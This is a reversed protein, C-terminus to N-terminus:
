AAGAPLDGATCLEEVAVRYLRALAVLVRASPDARGSEYAFVASHSIGLRDAVTERRLGVAERAARLRCPDTVNVPM